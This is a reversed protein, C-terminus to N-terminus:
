NNGMCYQCNRVSTEPCGIPGTKLTWSDSGQGQFVQKLISHQPLYKPRLPCLSLSTSFVVCYPAENGTSSVLYWELLWISFFSILPVQLVYPSLILAYLITNPLGSRFLGSTLGVCEHPSIVLILRWSTLDIACVPNIQSQIPLLYLSSTFATIFM